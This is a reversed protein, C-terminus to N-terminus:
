RLQAITSLLRRQKKKLKKIEKAEATPEQTARLEAEQGDLTEETMEPVSQEQSADVNEKAGAPPHEEPIMPVFQEQNTNVSDEEFAPPNDGGATEEHLENHMEEESPREPPDALSSPPGYDRLSALIAALEDEGVPDRPPSDGPQEM